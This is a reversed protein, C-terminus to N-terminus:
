SRIITTLLYLNFVASAITLVRAGTTLRRKPFAQMLILFAFPLFDLAYRPGIRAASSFYTLLIPLPAAIALLSLRVLRERWRTRFAYLLIPTVVFLSVGPRGRQVRVYPPQLLPDKNPSEMEGYVADPLKVFYHYINTPIYSLNLMDIRQDTQGVWQYLRDYGTDLVSGFRAYNYTGFLVSAATVPLLFRVLFKRCETWPAERTVGDALFFAAAALAATPRALSALGVAFGLVAPRRRHFYELLAFLVLAAALAQAVYWSWPVFAVLHYVSSFCFAFALYWADTRDYGTRRAITTVLAFIVAVLVINPYGQRFDIGLADTIAVFPALIVAPLPPAPWYNHGGASVTDRAGDPLTTFYLRGDLFSRALHVYQQQTDTALNVAITATVYFAM